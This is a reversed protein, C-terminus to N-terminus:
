YKSPYLVAKRNSDKDTIKVIQYLFINISKESINQNIECLFIQQTWFEMFSGKRNVKCWNGEFSCQSSWITITKVFVTANSLPTLYAASTHCTCKFDFPDIWFIQGKLHVPHVPAMVSQDCGILLAIVKLRCAEPLIDSRDVCKEVSEACKDCKKLSVNPCLPWLLEM